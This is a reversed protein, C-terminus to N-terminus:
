EHMQKELIEVRRSLQDIMAQQREIVGCTIELSEKLRTNTETVRVSLPFTACRVLKSVIRKYLRKLANGEGAPFAPPVSLDGTTDLIRKRLVDATVTEAKRPIPVQEFGPLDEYPGNKRATERIEAMIKKVDVRTEKQM